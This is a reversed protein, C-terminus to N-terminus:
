ERTTAHHKNGTGPVVKQIVLFITSCYVFGIFSDFRCYWAAPSSQSLPVCARKMGPLHIDSHTFCGRSALIGGLYPGSHVDSVFNSRWRESRVDGDEDKGNVRTQM